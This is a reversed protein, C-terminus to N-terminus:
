DVVLFSLHGGLGPFLLLPDARLGGAVVLAISVGVARLEAELKALVASRLALRPEVLLQNQEHLAFRNQFFSEERQFLGM